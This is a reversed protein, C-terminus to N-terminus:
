HWLHCYATSGELNAGAADGPGLRKVWGDPARATPTVGCNDHVWHIGSGDSYKQGCVELRTGVTLAALSPPMANANKVFDPAYVNDMAVQYSKGDDASLYLITHSLKVGDLTETARHFKPAKGVVGTLLTGHAAACAAAESAGTSQALLLLSALLPFCTKM